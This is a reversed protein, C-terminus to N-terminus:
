DALREYEIVYDLEREASLTLLVTDPGRYGPIKPPILEYIGPAKATADFHSDDFNGLELGSDAPLWPDSPVPLVVNGCRLYVCASIRRPRREVHQAFLERWRRVEEAQSESREFEHVIPERGHLDLEIRTPTEGQADVTTSLFELRQDPETRAVRLELRGPKLGEVELWGDGDIAQSFADLPAGEPWVTLQLPGSEEVGRLVVRLPAEPLLGVTQVGGRLLDLEIREAAYGKARVILTRMRPQTGELFLDRVDVPNPAARVLCEKGTALGSVDFWGAVGTADAVFISDLEGGDRADVVRVLTTQPCDVPDWRPDLEIPLWEGADPEEGAPEEGPLLEISLEEDPEFREYKFLACGVFGPNRQAYRPVFARMPVRVWTRRGEVPRLVEPAGEIPVGVGSASSCATNVSALALLAFAAVFTRSDLKKM